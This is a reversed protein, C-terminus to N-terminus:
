RTRSMLAFAAGQPDLCRVLWSGGPILRPQDVIRGGGASVRVMAATLNSVRFAFTWAAGKGGAPGDDIAGITDQGRTIPWPAAPGSEASTWGFLGTYFATAAGRDTTRLERWGAHGLPGDQAPAPPDALGKFLALYGGQPDAVLAYRGIGPVDAPGLYVSGGLEKAQVAGADVNTVTVYGIWGPQVGRAVADAPLTALGAVPVQEASLTTYSARGSGSTKADWGLVGRYFARAAAADTTWLEYWTFVGHSESRVAATVRRGLATLPAPAPDAAPSAAKPPAAAPPPESAVPVVPPASPPPSSAAPPPAPPEAAPSPPEATAVPRVPEPRSAPAAPAPAPQVAGNLALWGGGGLLAALALGALGAQLGRSPRPGTAAAPTLDPSTAPPSPRPKAALITELARVLRDVHLRFDRGMDVPAANLFALDKLPEPLQGAGPMPAGDVLIPVVKVGNALATQVEVRVPDAEDDVRRSGDPSVGLWNPGIIALLIDGDLLADKIHSRFDTGFPIADVDMFVSNQGFRHVLHDYIRGATASSDSRRYSVLIKM